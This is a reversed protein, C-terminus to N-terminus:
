KQSWIHPEVAKIQIRSLKYQCLNGLVDSHSELSM